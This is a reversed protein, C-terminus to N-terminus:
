VLPQLDGTAATQPRDDALDTCGLVKDTVDVVTATIGHGPIGTASATAMGPLAADSTSAKTSKYKDGKKAEHAGQKPEKADQTPEKPDKPEQAAKGTLAVGRLPSDSAVDVISEVIQAILKDKGKSPVALLGMDSIRKLLLAKSLPSLAAELGTFYKHEAVATKASAFVRKVNLCSVRIVYKKWGGHFTVGEPLEETM